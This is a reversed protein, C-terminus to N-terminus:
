IDYTNVYVHVQGFTDSSSSQRKVSSSAMEATLKKREQLLTSYAEFSHLVSGICLVSHHHGDNVYACVYMPVYMRISNCVYMCVYVKM